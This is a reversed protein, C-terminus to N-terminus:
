VVFCFFRVYEELEVETEPALKMNRVSPMQGEVLVRWPTAAEFCLCLAKQRM